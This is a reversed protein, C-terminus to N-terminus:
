EQRLLLAPDIRLARRAPAYCALMTVLALGLAVALLTPPDWPSVDILLGRVLNGSAYLGPLGILVGLGVLLAGEGLILRLMRQHTAGLALRVALEGRRRTVSGALVGFLGMGALLLAGVGLGGMLVASIRERSRAEAVIEDLTRMQSVPIRREINRIAGRVDRILATPDRSTRIVFYWYGRSGGDEARFFVQQRGDRHLDHLRAQDVVGVITAMNNNWQLAAGLPSRGPFFQQALHRDILAERVDRRHSAEFGRGALLQMGMTEVYEGRVRLIDVLPRDKDRDGSNGPAAPFSVAQMASTGSLPLSTTASVGTVGPIARLAGATRDLFSAADQNETLVVTSLRLTLVGESQFGPDAAVLREFSRVVLGGTGLLVLSLAVQVVILTRRMRGPAASGHVASASVLSASSLRAIWVAPALAAIFGLLAGAAIVVAAINWDLVISERRPLDSPGLAVLLRTGWFGAIVGAVGGLLGLLAGEVITGGIVASGSAGLARSVAFERERQAARALLLSALNVALVLLLFVATFGLAVLAPRVEKVLDAHVGVSYLTMGRSGPVRELITRGVDNVARDVADPSAGQRARVIVQYPYNNPNQKAPDVTYPVYVDPTNSASCNFTFDPRMVGVVTHTDPGIRLPTGVIAPDAGLRKWMADSLVVTTPRGQGGEEPGFGRGLAAQAGLLDFLNGTAFMMNIHYADQDTGAPIAGNGCQFAAADAIFGGANQIMAVQPGSATGERVNLHPVSAWVKYVDDPHRYPLPELLIKDVATYVVAFAGLGVTLTAVTAAVFLPARALRRRALALDRGWNGRRRWSTAPRWREAVGNRFSDISAALWVHALRLMGGRGWAERARLRYAEVVAHGMEDRFDPPYLRLLMEFWRDSARLPHGNM